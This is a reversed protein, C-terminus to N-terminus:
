VDKLELEYQILDKWYNINIIKFAISDGIDLYIHEGIKPQIGNIYFHKITWSICDLVKQYTYGEVTFDDEIDLIDIGCPLGKNM